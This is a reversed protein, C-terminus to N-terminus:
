VEQLSSLRPQPHDSSDCPGPQTGGLVEEELSDEKKSRRCCTGALGRVKPEVSVNKLKNYVLGLKEPSCEPCPIAMNLTQKCLSSLCDAVWPQPGEVPHLCGLLEHWTMEPAVTLLLSLRQQGAIRPAHMLLIM